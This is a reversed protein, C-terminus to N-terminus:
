GEVDHRNRGPVLGSGRSVRPTKPKEPASKWLSPGAPEGPFVPVGPDTDERLFRESLDSLRPEARDRSVSERPAAGGLDTWRGRRRNRFEEASLRLADRLDWEIVHLWYAAMSVVTRVAELQAEAEEFSAARELRDHRYAEFLARAGAPGHCLLLDFVSASNWPDPTSGSWRLFEAISRKWSHSQFVPLRSVALVDVGAIRELAGARKLIQEVSPLLESFHSGDM